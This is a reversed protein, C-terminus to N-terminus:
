DHFANLFGCHDTAREIPGPKGHLAAAGGGAAAAKAPDDLGGNRAAVVLSDAEATADAGDSTNPSSPISSKSKSKNCAISIFDAGGGGTCCMGDRGSGGGCDRGVAGARGDGAGTAGSAATFVTTGAADGKLAGGGGGSTM